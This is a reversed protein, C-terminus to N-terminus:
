FGSYRVWPKSLTKARAWISSLRFASVFAHPFNLECADMRQVNLRGPQWSCYVFKEPTTLMGPQGEHKPNDYLDTAVIQEVFNTLYFPPREYGAAVGLGRAFPNIAGVDFLGKTCVAYEWAKRHVYPGENMAQMYRVLQEGPRWDSIGPLRNLSDRSLRRMVNDSFVEVSLM